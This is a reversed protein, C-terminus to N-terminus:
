WYQQKRIRTARQQEAEREGLEVSRPTAVALSEFWGPNLRGSLHLASDLKTSNIACCVRGAAALITHL